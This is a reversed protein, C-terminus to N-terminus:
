DLLPLALATSLTHALEDPRVAGASVVASIFSSKRDRAAKLLEEAARTTLKGANVLVRAVGSLSSQPTEVLTEAMATGFSCPQDPDDDGIRWARYVSGTRGGARRGA